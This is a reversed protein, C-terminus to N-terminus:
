VRNRSIDPLHNFSLDNQGHGDFAALLQGAEDAELDDGTTEARRRNLVSKHRMKAKRMPKQPQEVIQVSSTRIHAVSENRTTALGVKSQTKKLLKKKYNTHSNLYSNFRNTYNDYNDIVQDPEKYESITDQTGTM